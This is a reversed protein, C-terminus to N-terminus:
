PETRLAQSTLAVCQVLQSGAFAIFMNAVSLEEKWALTSVSAIYCISYIFTCGLARKAHGTAYLWYVELYNTGALIGAVLAIFLILRGQPFRNTYTGWAQVSLGLALALISLGVVVVALNRVLLRFSPKPNRSVFASFLSVVKISFLGPLISVLTFWVYMSNYAGVKVLGDETGKLISLCLLHVPGGLLMGLFMSVVSRIDISSEHNPDAELRVVRNVFYVGCLLGTGGVAAATSALFINEGIGNKWAVFLTVALSIWQAFLSAFGVLPTTRGATAIGLLCCNIASTWAFIGCAVGLCVRRGFSLTQDTLGWGVLAGVFLAAGTLAIAMRLEGPTLYVERSGGAMRRSLRRTLTLSASEGFPGSIIGATLFLISFRGYQSLGIMLPLAIAIIFSNAKQVLQAIVISQALLKSGARLIIM